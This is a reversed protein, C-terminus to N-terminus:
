LLWLISSLADRQDGGRGRRVRRVIRRIQYQAPVVVIHAPVAQVHMHGLAHGVAQKDRTHPAGPLKPRHDHISARAEGALHVAHRGVGEQGLLPDHVLPVLAEVDGCDCTIKGEGNQHRERFHGRASSRPPIGNGVDELSEESQMELFEGGVWGKKGWLTKM